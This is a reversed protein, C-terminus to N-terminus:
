KEKVEITLSIKVKDTCEKEMVDIIDNWLMDGVIIAANGVAALSKRNDGDENNYHVTVGDNFQEVHLEAKLVNM